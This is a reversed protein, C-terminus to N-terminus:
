KSTKRRRRVLRWILIIGVVFPTILSMSWAWLMISWTFDGWITNGSNCFADTETCSLERNLQDIFIVLWWVFPVPVIIAATSHKIMEKLISSPM